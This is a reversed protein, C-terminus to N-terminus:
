SSKKYKAYAKAHALITELHESNDMVQLPKVDLCPLNEAPHLDKSLWKWAKPVSGEVGKESLITIIEEVKDPHKFWGIPKLAVKKGGTIRCPLQARDLEQESISKISWDSEAILSGSPKAQTSNKIPVILGVKVPKRLGLLNYEKIKRLAPLIDTDNTVFVVQDISQDTVVDFLAELAVNVDSQKEEMKWVEIRESDRPEKEKGVNNVEVKPCVVKDIAYGGKIVKLSDGCYSNLGQHYAKQDNISSNDYSARGSIDATFFKVASPQLLTSSKEVSRKLLIESLKIPDLWKYHTGKLCGFYFNYGDIYVRTNM